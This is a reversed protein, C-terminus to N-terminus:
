TIRRTSSVSERWLIRGNGAVKGKVLFKRKKEELLELEECNIKEELWSCGPTM